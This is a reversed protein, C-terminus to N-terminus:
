VSVHHLWHCTCIVYNCHRQLKICVLQFKSIPALELRTWMKSSRRVTSHTVGDHGLMCASCCCALLVRNWIEVDEFLVKHLAALQRVTLPDAQHVKHNVDLAAVGQCRRSVTAEEFETVGLVHRCFTMAEIYGNLRSSPAGNEREVCMFEYIQSENCPFKRGRDVFYNTIRAMSRCRKMITSPARNYFIDVLLQAQAQFGDQMVMQEVVKVNVSWTCLMAHWRYIATQWEADRQERWNMITTDRVHDMFTSAVKAVKPKREVTLDTDDSTVASLPDVPRVFNADFSSFFSKNPDFFDNWFGTEWFQQVGTTSLDVRAHGFVNGASYGEIIEGSLNRHSSSAAQSIRDESVSEFTLGSTVNSGFLPQDVHGSVTEYEAAIREEALLSDKRETELSSNELGALRRLRLGDEDLHQLDDTFDEGPFDTM